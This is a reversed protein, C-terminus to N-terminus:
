LQLFSNQATSLLSFTKPESCITKDFHPSFESLRVRGRRRMGRKARSDSQAYERAEPSVTVGGPKRFPMSPQEAGLLFALEVIHQQRVPRCTVMVPM